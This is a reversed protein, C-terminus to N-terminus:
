RWQFSESIMRYADVNDVGEPTALDIVAVKGGNGIEYRDVVLPVSKGTVPDPASQRSYEIKVGPQGKLEVNEPAQSKVTPDAKQLEEVGETATAESPMPGKHVAIHIVNGKERFTVDNGSGTRAWGEPYRVAYGAPKNTFLLFVQNDPIDGTALSEAESPVAGGGESEGGEGNAETGGEATAQAATSEIETVTSSSGGSSGCGALIAGLALVALVVAISLRKKM